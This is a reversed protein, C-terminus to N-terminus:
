PSVAASHSTLHRGQCLMCSWSHSVARLSGTTHIRDQVRHLGQRSQIVLQKIMHNIVSSQWCHLMVLASYVGPFGIGSIKSSILEALQSVNTHLVVSMLTRALFQCHLWLWLCAGCLTM